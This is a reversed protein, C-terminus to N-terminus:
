DGTARFLRRCHELRALSSTNGQDHLSFDRLFVKPTFSSTAFSNLQLTRRTMLEEVTYEGSKIREYHRAYLSDKDDKNFAYRKSITDQFLKLKEEETKCQSVDIGFVEKAFQCALEPSVPKGDTNINPIEKRFNGTAIRPREILALKKENIVVLLAISKGDLIVIRPILGGHRESVTSLKIYKFEGTDSVIKTQLQISKLIISQDLSNMWNRVLQCDMIQALEEDSGGTVEVRYGRFERQM